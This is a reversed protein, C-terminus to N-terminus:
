AEPLPNDKEAVSKKMLLVLPILLLALVAAIWYVDFYALSAAQQFRLDALSQLAMDHANSSDGSLRHFLEQGTALYSEVHPNLADLNDNLRSSHFQERRQVITQFMSTGVSGGENRLLSILAIASGRLEQPTYLLAAVNIPSFLLGLGATLVCRPAIFNWASVQLNLMSMWFNSVAILLLGLAIPWRADIGKGMLYGMVILMTISSIGGPSLVLGAQLADYSYLQQLMAPLAISAGYLVAFACFLLVCSAALNRERVVRLDILPDKTRLERIVFALFGILLLVVLTQVRGFPDGLWDWEQGKSLLIEWCSVAMALLGLGIYDLRFKQRNAKKRQEVLYDPDKVLFYAAVFAIVGIPINIYFIWRWDYNVVLWGGLTPGIVPGTLAAIGFLAMAAGQKERPFSDLLVGQSSPQLGGGALGQLARFFIIQTLSTAMGCLASAFTFVAISILFYNRRGLHASLWGSVTLVLANAALYSTIVWESDTEAAALGGAIYRLAVNAITTDLLEMFTPVVVAVAIIWPNIAPRTPETDASLSTAM